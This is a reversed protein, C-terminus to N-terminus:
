SLFVNDIVFNQDSTTEHFIIVKQKSIGVLGNEKTDANTCSFFETGFLHM